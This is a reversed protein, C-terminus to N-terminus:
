PGFSMKQDISYINFFQAVILNTVQEISLIYLKRSLQTLASNILYGFPDRTDLSSHKFRFIHYIHHMYFNWINNDKTYLFTYLIEHFNFRNRLEKKCQFSDLIFTTIIINFRAYNRLLARHEHGNNSQILRRQFFLEIYFYRFIGINLYMTKKKVLHYNIALCIM